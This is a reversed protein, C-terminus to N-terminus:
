YIIIHLPKEMFSCCTGDWYNSKIVFFFFFFFFLFYTSFFFLCVFGGSVTSCRDEYVTSTWDWLLATPRPSSRGEGENFLLLAARRATKGATAINYLLFNTSSNSKVITTGKFFYRKEVGARSGGIMWGLDAQAATKKLDLIAATLLDRLNPDHKSPSGEGGAHNLSSGQSSPAFFHGSKGLGIAEQMISGKLSDRERRTSCDFFNM